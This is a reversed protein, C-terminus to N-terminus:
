QENKSADLGILERLKQKKVYLSQGIL